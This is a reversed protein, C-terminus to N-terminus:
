EMAIVYRWLWGYSAKFSEMGMHRAHKNAADAIVLGPLNVSVSRQKVYWKHVVEELEVDLFM